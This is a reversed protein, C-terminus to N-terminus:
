HQIDIFINSCPIDSIERVINGELVNITEWNINLDKIWRSYIKTYTTLSHVPKMKKARLQASREVGNTSSAIKVGNYAEAWKTM